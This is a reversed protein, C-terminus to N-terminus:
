SELDSGSYQEISKVIGHVVSLGLGTGEGKEKTTLYPDFIRELNKEEIGYGTDSVTLELYPGPQARPADSIVFLRKEPIKHSIIPLM